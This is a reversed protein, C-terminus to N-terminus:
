FYDSSAHSSKLVELIKDLLQPSRTFGFEANLHGGNPIVIFEANLKSAFDRAIDMPVYPDNDGAFCVFKPCNRRVKAWDVSRQVFPLNLSKVPERVPLDRAFGAVFFCSRIPAPASQLYLCATLCSMSHAIIVADPPVSGGIAHLWNDPTQDKPLQPRFTTHGLKELEGALWPFWNGEPSGLTGHLM